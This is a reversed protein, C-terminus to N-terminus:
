PEPEGQEQVDRKGAQALAHYLAARIGAEFDIEDGVVEGRENTPAAADVAAEISEDSLLQEWVAKYRALEQDLREIVDAAERYLAGSYGHHRNLTEILQKLDSRPNTM